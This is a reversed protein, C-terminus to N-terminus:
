FIIILTQQFVLRWMQPKINEDDFDFYTEKIHLPISGFTQNLSTKPQWYKVHVRETMRIHIHMHLCCRCCRCGSLM